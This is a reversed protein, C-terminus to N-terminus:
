RQLHKRYLAVILLVNESNQEDTGPATVLGKVALVISRLAERCATCAELVGQRGRVEPGKHWSEALNKDLACVNFVAGILADIGGTRTM